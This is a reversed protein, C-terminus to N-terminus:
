SAAALRRAMRLSHTVIEDDGLDIFALALRLV